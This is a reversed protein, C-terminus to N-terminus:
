YVGQKDTMQQRLGPPIGTYAILAAAAISAKMTTSVATGAIPKGDSDVRYEICPIRWEGNEYVAGSRLDKAFGSM